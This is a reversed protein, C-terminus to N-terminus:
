YETLGNFRETSASKLSELKAEFQEKTIFVFNLIIKTDDVEGITGVLDLDILKLYVEGGKVGLTDLDDLIEKLFKIIKIWCSKLQKIHTPSPLYEENIKHDTMNSVKIVLTTIVEKYIGEDNEMDVELFQKLNAM